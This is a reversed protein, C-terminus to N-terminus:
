IGVELKMNRLSELVNSSYGYQLFLNEENISIIISITNSKRIYRLYLKLALFLVIMPWKLLGVGLASQRAYLIRRPFKKSLGLKVLLVTKSIKILIQEQQSLLRIIGWSFYVTKILYMNYFVYANSTTSSVNKLKCMAEM